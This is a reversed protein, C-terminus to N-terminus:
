PALQWLGVERLAGIKRWNGPVHAALEKEEEPFLLAFFRYGKAELLARLSPWRDPSIPDWRACPVRTYYELAGSAYTAVVVSKGPLRASAFRCIRPYISQYEAIGLVGVTRASQLEAALVAALALGGLATALLPREIRVLLGRACLAAALLLGPIGPLLFRLFGFAEYPGYLCYFGLFAGFWSLLLVRNRAPTSRDAVLGAAALPMIPTLTGVLWQGYYRFRAPFNSLAIVDLHGTKGYGTRLVGGYCHADIAALVGAMPAAGLAFLGFARKSFPLAFLLPLALLVSTPRVLVGIGFAAGCALAWAPRRRARLAFLVAAIAWLTAVVDGMPQIAQFLFPPWAALVTSASAAWAVPLGLERGVLYLLVLCLIAAAPSVLFPGRDWGAALAAAAIHAPFGIPYLPAMTGPRPGGLFGLPIFIPALADPLGLRDLAPPRAVLEGALLRRATNAYGSSDAGGVAHAAHRALFVGYAGLALLLALGVRSPRRHAM